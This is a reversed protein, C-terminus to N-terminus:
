AGVKDSAKYVERLERALHANEPLELKPDEELLNKADEHAAEVLERDRIVNVFRLASRGSQRRGLIDGERRLALDHESVEFGDDTRELISLREMAEPSKSNSLLFVKSDLGSRGVRGRLQHLQSLGFMNADEVIMVTAKPIDVGVEIVTTSVLVAIKGDHFGRMVEAKKESPLSGHLLGVEYDAFVTSSLYAAESEASAVDAVSYDEPSEIIPGEDSDKGNGTGKVGILPCVIFVQEGRALAEKAADFAKGQSQRHLVHTERKAGKTPRERLYTLDLNGFLSIALTRPIPTATMFLADPSEGKALLADRQSVGFRQQEDIVCFTCNAPHVDPEILAHTGILVDLKGSRLDSLIRERDSPVTSGSLMASRMGAKEFLPLLSAHHQEALVETPAMILTQGGADAAAAAGLAAVITKGSGVDGLLMRRGPKPREMDSVVDSVASEQDATLDFPLSALLDKKFHADALSVRAPSDMSQGAEQMMLHLQLFLLEEYILRRKASEVEDMDKPFHISRLSSDRSFLRRRMRIGHPIPDYCGAIRFLADKMFSRMMAASIKGTSPHVPLIKGGDFRDHVQEIFPNTMRLFGYAFTAKGAVALLQGPELKRALWPNNFVGVIMTSTGDVLTIEVLARRTNPFKLKVSHVRALITVETELPANAINSVRRLDIYRNPITYVLDRMDSIGARELLKARAPSIGKVDTLPGSLALTANTRDLAM